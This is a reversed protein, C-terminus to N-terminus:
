AGELELLFRKMALGDESSFGTLRRGAGLVRHCPLLLPWPNAALAQGVARAAKPRGILAALEAYTMTRGFPVSRALTALVLRTFASVRDWALPPSPWDAPRGTVCRQLAAQLAQGDDTRVEAVEGPRAFRLRIGFLAGDRWDLTLALPAAVLRDEATSRNKQSM